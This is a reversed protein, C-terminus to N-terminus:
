RTMASLSQEYLNLTATAIRNWSYRQATAHANRRLRDLYPRDLILRELAHEIATSDRTPILIGDHGDQLIELSAPILTTVPALGCAMAEPLALSFGESLTPFLKVQHGRLLDPLTTHDYHPVVRIRDHLEPEFDAYVQAAGCGTGLFSVKVQPYRTLIRNLAPAGYRVGKRDLYGGVEAICLAADPDIVTPELPLGVFQDSIGNAVTAIREPAIQLHQVAYDREARNLVLVLDARRMAQSVEWLRWGGHYLPYKWSLQVNGRSAEQVVEQHAIHELGHSRAVILPRSPSRSFIAWLWADGMSADIVQFSQQRTLNTLHMAVFEPFILARAIEPLAPLDDFSYYQVPHGLDQYRQGLQLTVGPAGANPNLDHHITLLINM